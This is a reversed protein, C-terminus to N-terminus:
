LSRYIDHKGISIFLIDGEEKYKFIIRYKSNVSISWLGDLKGKLSHLRLSSHFPNEKFIKEKKIALDAINKPLKLFEERFGYSYIINSKIM